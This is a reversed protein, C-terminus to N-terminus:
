KGIADLFVEEEGDDESSYLTNSDGVTIVGSGMFVQGNKKIYDYIIIDEDPFLDLKFKCFTAFRKDTVYILASNKSKCIENIIPVDSPYLGEIIRVPDTKINEYVFSAQISIDQFIFYSLEIKLNRMM